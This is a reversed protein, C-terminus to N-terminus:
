TGVTAQWLRRALDSIENRRALEEKWDAPISDVRYAVGALGGAVAGTTDSDGGLNVAKLVTQEFTTSHLLCWLSAELTHVVYGDSQVGDEPLQPVSGSLVRQFHGIEDGFLDDDGYYESVEGIVNKYSEHPSDGRLLRRAMAVYIGCAMQARAHGHTVRSALHAKELLQDLPDTAFRLAIPLIRMLSGNGNDWEGTPGARDAKTGLSLRQIAELTTGGIDFVEGCASWYAQTYWRVFRTGMDELDFGQVLSEATCFALSSDDSSTGPPQMHTGYGRMAVVPDRRLINRSVFEVPVGLADGSALGVLGGAVRGWDM